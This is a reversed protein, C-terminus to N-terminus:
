LIGKTSPIDTGRRPDMELANRVAIGVAKFIAEHIHHRNEGYHVLIHLNIGCHVSLKSFFEETLESDYLGFGEMASLTAGKLSFYPRGSFDVAVTVLTEDMPLTASGFRRIGRKEALGKSLAQGLVIGTDEVTHHGDIQTDGKIEVDLDILSYKSFHSLMHDFFPIPSKGSFQGGGDINIKIRIQTENTNREIEAKRADKM